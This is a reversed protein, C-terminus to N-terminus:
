GNWRSENWDRIVSRAVIGSRVFPDGEVFELAAERTAFVAMAGERPDAFPGTALLDGREFFAECRAKHAPFVEPIQAMHAPDTEYLVVTKLRTATAYHELQKGWGPGMEKLIAEAAVGFREIQRHEFEVRTRKAAEAVFKVEVETSFSPDYRWEATIQWALLVRGPPEWALVKGTEVESGDECISYWRGGAKPELVVRKLPSKGIHHERPWWRDMGETFVRFASAQSANVVIEKEIKM